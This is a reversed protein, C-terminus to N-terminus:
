PLHKKSISNYSNVSMSPNKHTKQKLNQIIQLFHLNGIGKHCNLHKM